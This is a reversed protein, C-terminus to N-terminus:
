VGLRIRLLRGHLNDRVPQGSRGPHALGGARRNRYLEDARQLSWSGGSPTMKFVTGGGGSGRSTTAGYLDGTNDFILGAVPQGGDNGGQFTYLVSYSWGSGAPSLEFVTGWGNAGKASTTGYLNGANDFVLGSYPAGGDNGGQFAYLITETWGSGSHSLEIVSGWGNPGGDQTVGYVNGAQDLVYNGTPCGEERKVYTRLATEIWPAFISIPPTPSPRLQLATGCPGGMVQAYSAATYISGDHALTLGWGPQGDQDGFSYLPNFLWGSNTHSLKFVLGDGNQGGLNATGFFHGAADKALTYPPSGGDVGGTFNHIIQYTQASAPQIATLTIAVVLATLNTCATQSLLAFPRSLYPKQHM